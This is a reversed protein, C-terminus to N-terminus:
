GHGHRSETRVPLAQLERFMSNRRWVPERSVPTLTPFRELMARLLIRAEVWALQRGLCTHVGRGFALNGKAPRTIDFADPREFVSEDRNASGIVVSFQEGKELRFDDFEIAETTIRFITRQIPSEFRLAEDIAADIREPEARLLAWQDPHSMLLWLASSALATVTANGAVFMLVMMALAEPRSIQGAAESHRLRAIMSGERALAAESLYHSSVYRHFEGLIGRLAPDADEVLSDGMDHLGLTWQRIQPADDEPTGLLRAVVRPPVAAAFEDVLNVIGGSGMRDLQRHTIEEIDATFAKLHQPTFFQAVLRRLRQHDDADRFLMNLDYFNESGPRRHPSIAYSVSQTDQILRQVDDHRFFLWTGPTTVHAERHPLWVPRGQDRLKRYVPYPDQFFAPSKLERLDFTM